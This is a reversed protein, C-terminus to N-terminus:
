SNRYWRLFSNFTSRGRRFLATRRDYGWFMRHDSRKKQQTYVTDTLAGPDKIISDLINQSICEVRTHKSIKKVIHQYKNIYAHIETLNAVTFNDAMVYLSENVSRTDNHCDLQLFPFIKKFHPFHIFQEVALRILFRKELVNTHKLFPHNEYYIADCFSVDEVDEWLNRIDETLGFHFWDSYHFPMRYLTLPNITFIEPILIRQSFSAYNRRRDRAHRKYVDIFKKSMLCLDNRIRLTYKRSAHKLGAKASQIQLNVNNLSDTDNKIPPLPLADPAKIIIDATDFLVKLAEKRITDIKFAAYAVEPLINEGSNISFEIFDCSSISVIIEAEPFMQRWHRCILASEQINKKLWPGQIVISLPEGNQHVNNLDNVDFHCVM